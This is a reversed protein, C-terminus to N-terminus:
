YPDDSGSHGLWGPARKWGRRLATKILLNRVLWGLRSTMRACSAARLLLGPSPRHHFVALSRSSGVYILNHSGWMQRLVAATVGPSSYADHVLVTASSSLHPLWASLDSVVTPYDHAGDVFLLGVPGGRWLRGALAGYARDLTVEQEVGAALLNARFVDLAGRGGGWRADDYPDVAVMNVGPRKASALVITSRGHHSGIEVISEGERVQMAAAFLTQAQAETLWGEIPDAQSWAGDFTM